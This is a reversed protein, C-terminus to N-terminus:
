ILAAKRKPPVTRRGQKPLKALLRNMYGLPIKRKQNLRKVATRLRMDPTAFVAKDPNEAQHLFGTICIRLPKEEDPKKEEKEYEEVADEEQKNVKVNDSLAQETQMPKNLEQQLLDTKEEKMFELCTYEEMLLRGESLYDRHTRNFMEPKPIKKTAKKETRCHPDTYAEIAKTKQNKDESSKKDKTLQIPSKETEQAQYQSLLLSRFSRKDVQVARNVSLSKEHPVSDRKNKPIKPMRNAYINQIYLQRDKEQIRNNNVEIKETVISLRRYLEEREALAKNESLVHLAQFADKTKLLETEVKRLKKSTNKENEQSVKLLNRLARVKNYHSALLNPLNSEPNEYRGIAKLRRCQLEKLVHNELSSAEVKHQLYFIENKLQKIKHLRASLIRQAVANKKQSIM